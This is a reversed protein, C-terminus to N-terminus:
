AADLFLWKYAQAIVVLGLGILLLLQGGAGMFWQYGGALLLVSGCVLFPMRLHAM